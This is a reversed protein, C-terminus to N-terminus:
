LSPRSWGCKKYSWLSFMGSTQVYYRGVGYNCLCHFFSTWHLRMNKLAMLHATVYLPSLYKLTNHLGVSYIAASFSSVQTQWSHLHGKAGAASVGVGPPAPSSESLLVSVWLGCAGPALWLTSLAGDGPFLSMYKIKLFASHNFCSM